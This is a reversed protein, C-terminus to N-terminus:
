DHFQIQHKKATSLFAKKARNLRTAVTGEPIKLIDSIEEYNLKEFYKLVLVEKYKIPMEKLVRHTSQIGADNLEPINFDETIEGILQYSMEVFAIKGSGTNKRWQSITENHVIRYIWSSLKISPDYSHINRWIKIFSEQLIDEAQDHSISSIHGIYSLLKREYREYLCSLYDVDLLCKQVIEQESLQDCIEKSILM